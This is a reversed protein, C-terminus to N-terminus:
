SILDTQFSNNHLMTYCRLETPWYVYINCQLACVVLFKVQKPLARKLKNCKLLGQVTSL